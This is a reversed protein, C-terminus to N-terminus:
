EEWFLAIGPVAAVVMSAQRTDDAGWGCSYGRWDYEDSASWWHQRRPGRADSFRTTASASCEPISGLESADLEFRMWIDNTDLNHAEHTRVASAPLWPPVWGREVAGDAVLEGRTQYYEEMQDDFLACSSASLAVLTLM